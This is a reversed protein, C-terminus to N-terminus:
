NQDCSDDVCMDLMFDFIKLAKVRKVEPIADLKKVIVSLEAPFNSEEGLLQGITVNFCKALNLLTEENKPFRNQEYYAYVRHEVGIIDAVEKQTLNHIKRFRRLNTHIDGM